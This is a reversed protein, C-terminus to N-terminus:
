DGQESWLISMHTAWSVRGTLHNDGNVDAWVMFLSLTEGRRIKRMAKTDFEPLYVPRPAANTAQTEGSIIVTKLVLADAPLAGSLSAGSRMRIAALMLSQLPGNIDVPLDYWFVGRIRRVTMNRDPLYNLGPGVTLVKSALYDDGAPASLDNGIAFRQWGVLPLRESGRSPSRRRRYRAM